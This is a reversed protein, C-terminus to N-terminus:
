YVEQIILPERTQKWLYAPIAPIGNCLHIALRAMWPTSMIKHMQQALFFRKRYRKLWDKKFQAANAKLFYDAAMCGSTIAIALGEGCLPPISGAADGIWFVREWSPNKRIGFEPVQGILWQPFILRANMMRENFSSMYNKKRLEDMFMELPTGNAVAEKKVLCAINTTREDIKSLGLYGGEFCHMELANELHIGEFHAKLGIYKLPTEQITVRNPIKGTGIMLHRAAVKNGNSLLIEYPSDTHKPLQLSLVKTETLIRAGKSKARDLLREDFKFRSCCGSQTPLSFEMKNSGQFFRCYKISESMPINWRQLIPLCEPSFFEGCVRHSPYSSADIVLPTLGADVLQNAASLGAVGGGVIVCDEIM